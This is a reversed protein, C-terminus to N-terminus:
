PTVETVPAAHEPGNAEALRAQGQGPDVQARFTAHTVIGERPRRGHGELNRRSGLRDFLRRL